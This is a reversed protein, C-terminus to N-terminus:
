QGSLHSLIVSFRHNGSPLNGGGIMTIIIRANIKTTTGGDSLRCLVRSDSNCQIIGFLPQVQFVGSPIPMDHIMQSTGTPDPTIVVGTTGNVFETESTTVDSFFTINGLSDTLALNEGDTTPFLTTGTLKWYNTFPIARWILNGAGDTSLFDSTLGDTNPWVYSNYAGVNNTRIYTSGISINSAVTIKGTADITIQPINNVDGYVGPSVGTATGVLRWTNSVAEWQYQNQGSVPAVLYLEGNVPSFPFSLLVM